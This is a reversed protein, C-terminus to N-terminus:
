QNSLNNPIVTQPSMQSQTPLYKQQFYHENLLEVVTSFNEDIDIEWDIFHWYVNTVGKLCIFM